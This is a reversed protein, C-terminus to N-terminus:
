GEELRELARRVRQAQPADERALYARADERARVLDEGEGGSRWAELGAEITRVRAEDARPSQPHEAVFARWAERLERWGAADEPSEETLRVFAAVDQSL